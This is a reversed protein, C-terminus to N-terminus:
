NGFEQCFNDLSLNALRDAEKNYKRDIHFINYSDFLQLLNHTKQYIDLLNESKVQYEGNLQKIVLLSDGKININKIKNKYCWLLGKNLATYEAFNNTCNCGIYEKYDYIKEQNSYVLFGIGSHGPNGRSAGDFYLTYSLNINYRINESNNTDDICDTTNIRIEGDRDEDNDKIHINNHCLTKSIEITLLGIKKLYNGYHQIDENGDITVIPKHNDLWNEHYLHCKELYEIPINEGKRSRKIVRENSITPNTKLYIIEINPLDKLFEEFWMNYIKFEIEGIKGEDYLMQAFVNKDTHVCRETVIIDYEKKLAEKLLHIRSIYAMMQFPFAYKEQNGYYCEIINQGEKNKVSNWIDVPEQLFHIKMNKINKICYGEMERVFTSKGSGINGEISIIRTM